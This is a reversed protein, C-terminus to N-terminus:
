CCNCVRRVRIIGTEGLLEFSSTTRSRSSTQGAPAQASATLRTTEFLDVYIPWVESRSDNAVGGSRSRDRRTRLSLGQDFRFALGTSFIALWGQPDVAWTGAILAATALLASFRLRLAPRHRKPAGRWM